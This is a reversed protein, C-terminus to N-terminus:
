ETLVNSAQCEPKVLGPSIVNVCNNHNGVERVVSRTMGILAAKSALYHFFNPAGRYATSTSINIIKGSNQGMVQSFVGNACVMM